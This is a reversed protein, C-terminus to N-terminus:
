KVLIKKAIGYGLAVKFDRVLVLFPGPAATNLVKVKVGPILGMSYLRSKMGRGGNISVITVEKGPLAMTLPIYEIKEDKTDNKWFSKAEM